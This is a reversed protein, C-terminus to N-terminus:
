TAPVLILLAIIAPEEVIGLIIGSLIGNVYDLTVGLYSGLGIGVTSNVPIVVIGLVGTVREDNIVYHVLITDIALFGNLLFNLNRALPEVVCPTDVKIRQTLLNAITLM